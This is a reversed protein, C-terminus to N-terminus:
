NLYKANDELKLLACYKKLVKIIKLTLYIVFKFYKNNKMKNSYLYMLIM